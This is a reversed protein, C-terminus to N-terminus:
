RACAVDGTDYRTVFGAITKAAAAGVPTAANMERGLAVLIARREKYTLQDNCAIAQLQAPLDANARQVNAAHTRVAM